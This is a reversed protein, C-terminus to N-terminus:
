GNTPTILLSLKSQVEDMARHMDQFLKELNESDEKVKKEDAVLATLM